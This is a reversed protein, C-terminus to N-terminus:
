VVSKRDQLSEVLRISDDTGLGPITYALDTM